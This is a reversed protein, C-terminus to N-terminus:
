WLRTLVNPIVQLVMTLQSASGYDNRYELHGLVLLDRFMQKVVAVPVLRGADSDYGDICDYRCCWPQLM